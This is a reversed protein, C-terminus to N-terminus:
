DVDLVTLETMALEIDVVSKDVGDCDDLDADADVDVDAVATAAVVGDEGVM